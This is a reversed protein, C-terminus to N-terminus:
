GINLIKLCRDASGTFYEGKSYAMTEIIGQHYNEIELFKVLKHDVLGFLNLKRSGNWTLANLVPIGHYTGKFNM